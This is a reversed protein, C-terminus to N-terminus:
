WPEDSSRPVGSPQPLSGFHDDYLDQVRAVEADTLAAFEKGRARKSLAGGGQELFSRLLEVTKAPMDVVRQVEESFRDFAELFRVENPLDVDVTQEVCRFLFAAHETADFYRYYDATENLVEVNHEADERWHIFPLLPQSYSELVRRYEAINRLIAASVPFVLGPPNYRAGALVHHFLWRHIRGNGDEFPHVYVFGFAVVAAAVVADIEHEVRRDYAVLGGVLDRLDDARASIHQPLPSHTVRDHEGIFGGQERLGLKVFRADGIVVRQLRELEQITLPANGAQAIAQGWRVAREPSPQENEIAFSSKSDSLLLFAAARAIVDARTRGILQRAKENLKKSLYEEIEATRRVMPCFAPTGPMNDVVRHRSSIRGRRLSIQLRPDVVEVARVKGPEPVDLETQLLWEYLFWIRRYYASTPATRIMAVIDEAPITKFLAALVGLDVGEYRLAYGLHGALTEAPRHRPTQLLWDSTSVPHHREAIASLRPPLPMALNYHDILAAYGVPFGSEPLRRGHFENVPHSFWDGSGSEAFPQGGRAHFENVKHSFCDRARRNRSFPESSQERLCWEDQARIPM